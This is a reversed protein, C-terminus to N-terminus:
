QELPRPPVVREAEVTVRLPERARSDRHDVRLGDDAGLLLWPKADEPFGYDKRHAMDKRLEWSGSRPNDVLALAVTELQPQTTELRCAIAAVPLGKGAELAHCRLQAPDSAPRDPPVDCSGYAFADLTVVIAGSAANDTWRGRMGLIMENDHSSSHDKGDPTVYHSKASSGHTKSWACGDVTGDDHLDLLAGGDISRSVTHEMTIFRHQRASLRAAYRGPRAPARPRSGGVLPGLELDTADIADEADRVADRVSAGLEAPAPEVASGRSESAPTPTPEEARPTCAVLAVGLAATASSPRVV